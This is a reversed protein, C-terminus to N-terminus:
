KNKIKRNEIAAQLPQGITLRSLVRVVSRWVNSTMKGQTKHM